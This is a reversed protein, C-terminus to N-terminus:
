AGGSPKPSQGGQAEGILRRLEADKVREANGGVTLKSLLPLGASCAMLFGESLGKIVAPSIDDPTRYRQLENAKAVVVEIVGYFSVVDMAADELSGIKDALLPFVTLKPMHSLSEVQRSTIKETQVAVQRLLKHAGYARALLIRCEVALSSRVDDIEARAKRREIIATGIVAVGAAVLAFIGAILSQWHDALDLWTTFHWPPQV